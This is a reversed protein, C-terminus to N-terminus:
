FPSPACIGTGASFWLLVKEFLQRWKKPHFPGSSADRGSASVSPATTITRPPPCRVPGPPSRADGDKSSLLPYARQLRTEGSTRSDGNPFFNEVAGKGNSVDYDHRIGLSRFKAASYCLLFPPCCATGMPGLWYPLSYFESASPDGPEDGEFPPIVHPNEV